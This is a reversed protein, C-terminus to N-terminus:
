AALRVEACSRVLPKAERGPSVQEAIASGTFLNGSWFAISLSLPDSLLWYLLRRLRLPRWLQGASQVLRRYWLSKIQQKALNIQDVNWYQGWRLEYHSTAATTCTAGFITALKRGMVLDEGDADIAEVLKIYVDGLKVGKNSHLRKPRLPIKNLAKRVPMYDLQKITVTQQYLQGRKKVKVKLKVRRLLAHSGSRVTLLYVPKAGHETVALLEVGFDVLDGLSQWRPSVSPQRWFAHNSHQYASQFLQRTMWGAVQSLGRAVPSRDTIDSMKSERYIWRYQDLTDAPRPSAPTFLTV